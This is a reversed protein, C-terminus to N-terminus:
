SGRAAGPGGNLMLQGIKLFDRPLLQVSGGGYPHGAPDMLWAYRHIDLPAGLLRDFTRMQSEGTARGVM